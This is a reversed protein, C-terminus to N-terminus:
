NGAPAPETRKLKEQATESKPDGELALKWNARAKELNGVKEYTDGLHEYIVSSGRMYDPTLLTLAQELTEVAKPYEGKQYYVWGLSDTINPNKPELSLAKQILELARDLKLGREAYLYGIFNYSESYDPAAKQAAEAAEEACELDNMKDCVLGLQIYTTADNPDLAVAQKFHEKAEPYRKMDSMLHALGRLAPLNSSWAEIAQRYYKEAEITAGQIVAIYGQLTFAQSRLPTEIADASVKAFYPAAQEPSGSRLYTLAIEYRLQHNNPHLKLAQNWYLLRERNMEKDQYINGIELCRLGKLTTTASAIARAFLTAAEERKEQCLYAHGILIELEDKRTPTLALTQSAAQITAPYDGKGFAVQARLLGLEGDQGSIQLLAALEGEVPEWQKMKVLYKLYDKRVSITATAPQTPLYSTYLDRVKGISEPNAHLMHAQLLLFKVDKDNPVKKLYTELYDVAANPLGLELALRGALLFQDPRSKYSSNKLLSVLEELARSKYQIRLEGTASEAQMLAIRVVNEDAIPNGKLKDLYELAESYLGLEQKCLGLLYAAQSGLPSSLLPELFKQAKGYEKLHFYCRGIYFNWMVMQQPLSQQLVMYDDIAKRILEPNTIRQQLYEARMQRARTQESALELCRDLSAVMQDLKNNKQYILAQILHIRYYDPDIQLAREIYQQARPADDRYCIEALQTLAVTSNPMAALAAELTKMAEAMKGAEVQFLGTALLQRYRLRAEDTATLVREVVRVGDLTQKGNQFVETTVPVVPPAPEQAYLSSLFSVWLSFFISFSHRIM